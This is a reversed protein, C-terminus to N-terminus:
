GHAEIVQDSRENAADRDTVTAASQCRVIAETRAAAARREHEAAYEQRQGDKAPLSDHVDEPHNWKGHQADQQSIDAKLVHKQRTVQASPLGPQGGQKNEGEGDPRTVEGDAEDAGGQEIVQPVPQGRAKRLGSKCAENTTRSIFSCSSHAITNGLDLLSNEM